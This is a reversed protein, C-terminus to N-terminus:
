ALIVEVGLDKFPPLKSPEVGSDFVLTHEPSIPSVRAFAIQGVKSHDAAVVVQRAHDMMMRKISAADFDVSTYGAKADIGNFSLFAHDVRIAELSHLVLDGMIAWRKSNVQGGLLVVDIKPNDMMMIAIKLSNTAIRLGNRNRLQLAIEYVTTGADLLITEEDSVMSACVAAIARKEASQSRERVAYPPEYLTSEQLMAGGHTRRLMGKGELTSLDTRITALSVSLGHAMDDVTVKGTRRLEKLIFQRREEAFM